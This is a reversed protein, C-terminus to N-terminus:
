HAFHPAHLLLYSIISKLQYSMEGRVHVMGLGAEKDWLSLGWYNSNIHSPLTKKQKAFSSNSRVRSSILEYLADSFNKM